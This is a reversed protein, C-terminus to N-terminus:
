SQSEAFLAAEEADTLVGLINVLERKGDDTVTYILIARSLVERREHQTTLSSEGTKTNDSMASASSM